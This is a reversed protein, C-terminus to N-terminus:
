ISNCVEKHATSVFWQRLKNVAESSAANENVPTENRANPLEQSAFDPLEPKNTSSSTSSLARTLSAEDCNISSVSSETAISRPHYDSDSDSDSSLLKEQLISVEVDPFDNHHWIEKESSGRTCSAYDVTVAQKLLQAYHEDRKIKHHLRLHNSMNIVVARCEYILCAKHHHTTVTAQKPLNEDQSSLIHTAYDM